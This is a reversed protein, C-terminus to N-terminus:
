QGCFGSARKGGKLSESLVLSNSSYTNLHPNIVLLKLQDPCMHRNCALFNVDRAETEGVPNNSPNILNVM